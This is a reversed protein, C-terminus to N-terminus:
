RGSTALTQWQDSVDVEVLGINEQIRRCLAHPLVSFSVQILLFDLQLSLFHFGGKQSVTDPALWRKATLATLQVCRTWDTM